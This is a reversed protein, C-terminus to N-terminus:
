EDNDEDFDEDIDKFAHYHNGEDMTDNKIINKLQKNSEYLKNLTGHMKNVGIIDLLNKQTNHFKRNTKNQKKIDEEDFIATKLWFEILNSLTVIGKIPTRNEEGEELNKDNKGGTTRSYRILNFKEPVHVFAMHSKGEKFKDFLDFFQMDEYAHLPQSLEIGLQTITKPESLDKGLFQYMRLVGVFNNDRNSYVPIRSKGTDILKKLVSKSIKANFDLKVVKELPIMIDGVKKNMVDLFGTFYGM